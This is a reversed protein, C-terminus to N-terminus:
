ALKCGAGSDSLAKAAVGLVQNEGKDVVGLVQNEGKDVVRLYFDQVPNHAHGTAQARGNPCVGPKRLIAWANM